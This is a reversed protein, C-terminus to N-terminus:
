KSHQENKRKIATLIYNDIHRIPQKWNYLHVPKHKYQKKIRRKRRKSSNSTTESDSFNLQDHIPCNKIVSEKLKYLADLRSVESESVANRRNSFRKRTFQRQKSIIKRKITQRKTRIYGITQKHPTIVLDYTENNIECNHLVITQKNGLNKLSM